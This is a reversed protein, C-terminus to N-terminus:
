CGGWARVDMQGPVPMLQQGPKALAAAPWAMAVPAMGWGAMGVPTWVAAPMATMAPAAATVAAAAAAAAYAAPLAQQLSAPAPPQPASWAAVAAARGRPEPERAPASLLDGHFPCNEGAICCPCFLGASPMAGSRGLRSFTTSHSQCSEESHVSAREISDTHTPSLTSSSQDGCAEALRPACVSTAAPPPPPPAATPAPPVMADALQRILRDGLLEQQRMRAGLCASSGAEHLMGHAMSRFDM